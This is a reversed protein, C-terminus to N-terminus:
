LKGLGRQLLYLRELKGRAPLHAGRGEKTWKLCKAVSSRTEEHVYVAWIVRVGAEILVELKAILFVKEGYYTM